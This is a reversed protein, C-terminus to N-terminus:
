SCVQMNYVFDDLLPTFVVRRVLAQTRAQLVHFRADLDGSLQLWRQLVLLVQVGFILNTETM